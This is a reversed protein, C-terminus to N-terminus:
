DHTPGSSEVRTKSGSMLLALSAGTAALLLAAVGFMVIKIAVSVVALTALAVGAAILGLFVPVLAPRAAPVSAAPPAYSESPEYTM